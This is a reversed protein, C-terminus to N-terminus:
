GTSMYMCEFFTTELCFYSPIKKVNWLFHKSDCSFENRRDNMDLSRRLPNTVVSAFVLAVMVAWIVM